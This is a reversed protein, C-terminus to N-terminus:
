NKTLTAVKTWPNLTITYNGAVTIAINSGGDTLAALSGGLSYDWLDNARFKFEKATLELTVTFVSHVADWTMNTDDSWEGPTADGIVGWRDARYTYALPHSLDLTIAYDDEITTEFNDGGAKLDNSDTGKGYNYDWSDNARFKWEGAPMHIGGRWVRVAPDYTLPLQSGWGTLDGIIGWSTAVATYTMPDAGANVNIKYYGAPLNIDDGGPDLTGAPTGAGYNPGDWSPKSAFKWNNSANAMYIYGEVNDPATELSVVMPSLEPSWDALGSGPYSAAVYDGPVYWNRISVPTTFSIENGYATKASSTAYARVYYTTLGKLGTLLSEFGGIGAGDVTKSGTVTPNPSTGYCVGRETVASGGDATIIGGTKASTGKVDSVATTTITALVPLTTFTLEEGYITGAAGTAYARAYYKKAFALDTLLVNYTATTVPGSFVAKSKAITPSTELDYCVGKETFGDGEAIVFGAVIASSSTIDFVKNTALAPDLRVESTEKTCGALLIAAAVPLMMIRIISKMEM